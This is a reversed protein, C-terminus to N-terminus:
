YCLFSSLFCKGQEDHDVDMQQGRRDREYDELTQRGVFTTTRPQLGFRGEPGSPRVTQSDPGFPDSDANAVM